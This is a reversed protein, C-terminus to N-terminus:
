NQRMLDRLKERTKALEELAHQYQDRNHRTDKRSYDRRRKEVLEQARDYAQRAQELKKKLEGRNSDESLRTDSPEEGGNEEPTIGTYQGQDPFSQGNRDSVDDRYRIREVDDESPLSRPDDTIHVVGEKDTWLYLEGARALSWFFFVCCVIVIIIRLYRMASWNGAIGNLCIPDGPLVQWFGGYGEVFFGSPFSRGYRPIGTMAVPIM